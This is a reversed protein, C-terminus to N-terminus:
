GVEGAVPVSFLFTTQGFPESEVWIRGRHAELIRRCIYLGLGSGPVAPKGALRVRSFRQFLRPVAEAEIGPGDNTVSFIVQEGDTRVMLEVPTAEDSYKEANSLLNRLVQVLRPGDALVFAAEAGEEVRVKLRGDLEGVAEAGERAIEVARERRLVLSPGGEDLQTVTAAEEAMERLRGSEQELREVLARREEETLADWRRHLSLTVARVAAVPHFLEHTLISFFEGKARDLRELDGVRAREREFLREMAATRRRESRYLRRLDWMLGAALTLIFAFRLVDGSSVQAAFVTPYFMYHLQSFAALVLATPLWPMSRTETMRLSIAAAALYVGFGAIGMALDAATLGPMRGHSSAALVASANSLPPLHSRSMWVLGQISASISLTVAAGVLFARRRARGAFVRGVPLAALLLAVGATLRGATWLYTEQTPTVSRNLPGLLAGLVLHNFALALFALVTALSVWTGAVSYRVYALYCVFWMITAAAAELPEPDKVWPSRFGLGPLVLLLVTWVLLVGGLSGVGVLLGRSRRSSAESPPFATERVPTPLADM